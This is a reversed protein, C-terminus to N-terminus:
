EGRHLQGGLRQGAPGTQVSSEREEALVGVLGACQQQVAGAACPCVRSLYLPLVSIARLVHSRSASDSDCM